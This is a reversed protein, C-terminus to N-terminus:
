PYEKRGFKIISSLMSGGAGCNFHEGKNEASHVGVLFYGSGFQGYIPSGSQGKYIDIEHTLMKFKGGDFSKVDTVAEQPCFVPKKTNGKDGPYGISVWAKKNKWSDQWTKYGLYGSKDGIPRDLVVLVYDNAVEESSLGDDPNIKNWYYVKDANATGIQSNPKGNYAPSFKFSKFNNGSTFEVCHQATIMIRRGVM